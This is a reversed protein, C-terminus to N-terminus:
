LGITAWPPEICVLLSAIREPWCRIALIRFSNSPRFAPPDIRVPQPRQSSHISRTSVSDAPSGGLVSSRNHIIDFEGSERHEAVFEAIAATEEPTTIGGTAYDAKM